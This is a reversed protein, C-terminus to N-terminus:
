RRTQRRAPGPSRVPLYCSQRISGRIPMNKARETHSRVWSGLTSSRYRARVRVSGKELPAALQFAWYFNATAIMLVRLCVLVHLGKPAVIQTLSLISPDGCWEDVHLSALWALEEVNKAQRPTTSSVTMGVM